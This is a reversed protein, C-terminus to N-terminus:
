GETEKNSLKSACEGYFIADFPAKLAIYEISPKPQVVRAETLSTTVLHILLRVHSLLRVTSLPLDM